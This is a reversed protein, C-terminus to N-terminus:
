SLLQVSPFLKGASFDGANNGPPLWVDLQRVGYMACDRGGVCVNKAREIGLPLGDHEFQDLPVHSQGVREIKHFGVALMGYLRMLRCEILCQICQCQGADLGVGPLAGLADIAPFREIREFPFERALTLCHELWTDNRFVSVTHWRGDVNLFLAEPDHHAFDTVFVANVGFRFLFFKLLDAWGPHPRNRLSRAGWM